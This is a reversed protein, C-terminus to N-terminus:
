ERHEYKDSEVEIGYKEFQETYEYAKQMIDLNRIHYNKDIYEEIYTILLQVDISVIKILFDIIYSNEILEQTSFIAEIVFRNINETKFTLRDAESLAYALLVKLSLQLNKDSNIFGIDKIFDDSFMNCDYGKM